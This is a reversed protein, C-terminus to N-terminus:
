RKPKPKPKDSVGPINGQMIQQAQENGALAKQVQPNSMAQQVQSGGMIQNMVQKTDVKEERGGLVMATMAPPLGLAGTVNGVLTKISPDSQVLDGAVSALGAPSQAVADKVFSQLARDGAYQKVLQPFTPSKALGKLFKVPDRDNLYDANLKALDPHKMWDKGYRQVSPYKKTYAVALLYAKQEAAKIFERFSSTPAATTSGGSSGTSDPAVGAAGMQIGPMGASLMGLSSQAQASQSLGQGTSRPGEAVAIDFGSNDAAPAQGGQMLMWVAVGGASGVVALLALIMFVGSSRRQPPPPANEDSM